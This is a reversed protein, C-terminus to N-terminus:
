FRGHAADILAGAQASFGYLAEDIVADVKRSVASEPVDLFLRKEVGKLAECVVDFSKTDMLMYSSDKGRVHKMAHLVSLFLGAQERMIVFVASVFSRFVRFHPSSEGGMADIMEKRLKLPISLKPDQGLIFGFDIHFLRGNPSLMLNELHRDGFGLIYSIAAYGANSAIYRNLKKKDERKEREVEEATPEPEGAARQRPRGDAIRRLEVLEGEASMELMTQLSVGQAPDEVRSTLHLDTGTAATYANVIEVLHAVIQDKCIPGHSAYRQVAERRPAALEFVTPSNNFLGERGRDGIVLAGCKPATYSAGTAANALKEEPSLWSFWHRRDTRAASVMSFGEPVTRWRGGGGPKRIDGSGLLNFQLDPNWPMPSEFSLPVGGDGDPGPLLEAAQLVRGGPCHFVFGGLPLKSEQAREMPCPAAWAATEAAAPARLLFSLDGNLRFPPFLQGDTDGSMWRTGDASAQVVGAKLYRLCMPAVQLRPECMARELDEPCRVFARKRPDAQMYDTILSREEPPLRDGDYANALKAKNVAAITTQESNEPYGGCKASGFPLYGTALRFMIVGCAYSDARGDPRYDANEQEPPNFLPAGTLASAVDNMPDLTSDAFDCVRLTCTEASFDIAEQLLLNAPRIDRHVIQLRHMYRVASLLQRVMVQRLTPPVPQRPYCSLLEELSGGYARRMVLSPFEIGDADSVWKVAEVFNPHGSVRQFCKREAELRQPGWGHKFTKLALPFEGQGAQELWESAEYVDAFAGVHLLKGCCFGNRFHCTAPVASPPPRIQPRGSVVPM